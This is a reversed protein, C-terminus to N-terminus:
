EGPTFLFPYKVTTRTGTAPFRLPKIAAGACDLVAREDLGETGTVEVDAVDGEAQVAFSLVIRGAAGPARALRDEYCKRLAPLASRRMVGKIEDPTLSPTVKVVVPSVPLKDMQALTQEVEPLQAERPAAVLIVPPAGAREKAVLVGEGKQLHATVEAMSIPLLDDYRAPIPDGLHTFYAVVSGALRSKMAPISTWSSTQSFSSRVKVADDCAPCDQQAKERLADGINFTGFDEATHGDNGFTVVSVEIPEGKDRKGGFYGALVHAFASTKELHRGRLSESEEKGTLLKRLRREAADQGPWRHDDGHVALLDEVARVAAEEDNMAECARSLLLAARDRVEAPADKEAIVAELAARAAPVDRGVDLAREAQEVRVAADASAAPEAAAPREELDRTDADPPTVCGALALLSVLTAALAPRKNM